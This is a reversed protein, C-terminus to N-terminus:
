KLKSSHNTSFILKSIPYIRFLTEVDQLFNWLDYGWRRLKIEMENLRDKIQPVIEPSTKELKNFIFEFLKHRTITSEEYLPLGKQKLYSRLERLLNIAKRPNSNVILNFIRKSAGYPEDPFSMNFVNALKAISYEDFGGIWLRILASKELIEYNGSLIAEKQEEYGWEGFDVLFSHLKKDRFEEDYTCLPNDTILVKSVSGPLTTVKELINCLKNLKMEGARVADFMYHVDDLVLVTKFNKSSKEVKEVIKEITDATAIKRAPNYRRGFENERGYKLPDIVYIRSYDYFGVIIPLIETKLTLERAAKLSCFTKGLGRDGIVQLREESDEIHDVLLYPLYHLSPQKDLAQLTLNEAREPWFEELPAPTIEIHLYKRGKGVGIRLPYPLRTIMYYTGVPASAFLNRNIEFKRKGKYEELIKGLPFPLQYAYRELWYFFTRLDQAPLKSHLWVEKM